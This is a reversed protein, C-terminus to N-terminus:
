EAHPKGARGSTMTTLSFIFFLLLFNRLFSFLFYSICRRQYSLMEPSISNGMFSEGFIWVSVYVFVRRVNTYFLLFPRSKRPWLIDEMHSIHSRRNMWFIHGHWLRIWDGLTWGCLECCLTKNTRRWNTRFFFSDNLMLSTRSNAISRRGVCFTLRNSHVDLIAFNTHANRKVVGIHWRRQHCWVLIWRDGGTFIDLNLRTFARHYLRM